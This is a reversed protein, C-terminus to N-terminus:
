EFKLIRLKTLQKELSLIKKEKMEEAKKIAEQKTKHWDSGHYYGFKGTDIMDEHNKSREAETEIIGQTLAYKTIWVKM